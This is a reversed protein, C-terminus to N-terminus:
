LMEEKDESHDDIDLMKFRQEDRDVICMIRRMERGNCTGRSPHWSGDGEIDLRDKVLRGTAKIEESM